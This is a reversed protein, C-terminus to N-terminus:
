SINSLQLTTVMCFNVQDCNKLFVGHSTNLVLSYGLLFDLFEFIKQLPTNCPYDAQTAQRAHLICLTYYRQLACHTHGLMVKCNFICCCTFLSSLLSLFIPLFPFICQGCHETSKLAWQSFVLPFEFLVNLYMDVRTNNFESSHVKKALWCDM